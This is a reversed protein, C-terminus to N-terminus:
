TMKIFYESLVNVNLKKNDILRERKLLSILTLGKINKVFMNM